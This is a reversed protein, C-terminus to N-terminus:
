LGELAGQLEKLASVSFGRDHFYRIKGEGDVLVVRANGPNINGTFRQVRDGDKYITVVAKWLEKPIGRRMGADIRSKFARPAMGRITPLEYVPAAVERMDLGILWRDIDFQARQVYGILFVTPEGKMDAPIRYDKGALSTGEVAPFVAGVPSKNEYKASCATTLAAALVLAFTKFNM